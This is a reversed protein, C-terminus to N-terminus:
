LYIQLIDLFFIYFNICFFTSTVEGGRFADVIKNKENISRSGLFNFNRGVLFEIGWGSMQHLSSLFSKLVVATIIREVFVICRM